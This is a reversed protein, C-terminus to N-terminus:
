TEVKLSSVLAIALRVGGASGERRWALSIDNELVLDTQSVGMREAELGHKWIGELSCSGDVLASGSGLEAHQVATEGRKVQRKGGSLVALGDQYVQWSRILSRNELTDRGLLVM